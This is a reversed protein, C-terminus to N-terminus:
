EFESKVNCGNTTDGQQITEIWTIVEEGQVVSKKEHVQQGCMNQQRTQAESLTDYMGYILVTPSSCYITKYGVVLYKEKTQDM